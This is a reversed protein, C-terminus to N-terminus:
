LSPNPSKLTLPTSPSYKRIFICQTDYACLTQIALPAPIPSSLSFFTSKLSVTRVEKVESIVPVLVLFFTFTSLRFLNPQKASQNSISDAPLHLLTPNKICHFCLSNNQKAHIPLSLSFFCIIHILSLLAYKISFLKIQIMTHSLPLSLFPVYAMLPFPGYQVLLEHFM